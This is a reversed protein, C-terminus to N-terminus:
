PYTYIEDLSVRKGSAGTIRMRNGFPIYSWNPDEGPIGSPEDGGNEGTDPLDDGSGRFKYVLLGDESMMTLCVMTESNRMTYLYWGGFFAGATLCTLLVARGILKLIGAKSIQRRENAM